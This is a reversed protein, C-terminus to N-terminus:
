PPTTFHDGLSRSLDPCPNGGSKTTSEEKLRYDVLCCVIDRRPDMDRGRPHLMRHIREMAIATQPPRNLVANFLNTVVQPVHEGEISEPLGRVRLNHRRGRNNLDELHRNMDRLQLTHADFKRTSRQLVMGHDEVVRETHSVRDNLSCIDLRLEAIAASLNDKIDAVITRLDQINLQPLPPNLIGGQGIDSTTSPVNQPASLIIEPQTHPLSQSHGQSTGHCSPAM